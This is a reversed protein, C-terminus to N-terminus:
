MLDNLLNNLLNNLNGVQLNLGKVQAARAEEDEVNIREKETKDTFILEVMNEYYEDLADADEQKGAFELQDILTDFLDSIDEWSEGPYGAKQWKEVLDFLESTSDEADEGESLVAAIEEKIIQTIQELTFKM